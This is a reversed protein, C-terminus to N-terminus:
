IWSKGIDQSNNHFLTDARSSNAIDIDDQILIEELVIKPVVVLVDGDAELAAFVRYLEELIQTKRREGVFRTDTLDSIQLGELHKYCIGERWSDDEYLRAFMVQLSAIVPNSFNAWYLLTDRDGSYPILDTLFQAM